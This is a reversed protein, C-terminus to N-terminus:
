TVWHVTWSLAPGGLWNTLDRGTGTREAVEGASWQMFSRQYWWLTMFNELYHKRCGLPGWDGRCISAVKARKYLADTNDTWDVTLTFVWTNTDQWWRRTWVSSTWQDSRYHKGRSTSLWRRQKVSTHICTTANVGTLLVDLVPQIIVSSKLHCNVTKHMWHTSTFLFPSLVTCQPAGMSCSRHSEDGQDEENGNEGLWSWLSPPSPLISQHFAPPSRPHLSTMPSQHRHLLCTPPNILSTGWGQSFIPIFCIKMQIFPYQNQYYPSWYIFKGADTLSLTDVLKQLKQKRTESLIYLGHHLLARSIHEKLGNQYSTCSM